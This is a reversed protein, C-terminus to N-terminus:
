KEGKLPNLAHTTEESSIYFVFLDMKSLIQIKNM